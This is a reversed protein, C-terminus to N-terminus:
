QVSLGARKSVTSQLVCVGEEERGVIRADLEEAHAGDVAIRGEVLGGEVSAGYELGYSSAVHLDVRAGRLGNDTVCDMSSVDMALAAEVAHCQQWLGGLGCRGVDVM